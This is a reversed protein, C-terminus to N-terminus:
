ALIVGFRFMLALILQDQDSPKSAMLLNATPEHKILDLVSPQVEHNVSSLVSSSM